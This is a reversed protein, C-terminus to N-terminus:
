QHWQKPTLIIVKGTMINELTELAVTWQPWNKPQSSVLIM